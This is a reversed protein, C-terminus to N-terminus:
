NEKWQCFYSGKAQKGTFRIQYEEGQKLDVTTNGKESATFNHRFVVQNKSDVVQMELEGKKVEIEYDLAVSMKKKASLKVHSLGSYDSYSAKTYSKGNANSWKNDTIKNDFYTGSSVLSKNEVDQLNRKQANGSFICMIFLGLFVIKSKM